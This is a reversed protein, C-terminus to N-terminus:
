LDVTIKLARAIKKLAEDQKALRAGVNFYDLVGAGAGCGACQVFNLKYNSSHPEVVQMEFTHNGCKPCSSLAM